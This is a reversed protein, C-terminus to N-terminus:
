PAANSDELAGDILEDFSALDISVVGLEDDFDPTPVWIVIQRGLATARQTVTEMSPSNIAAVAAAVVSDSELEAVYCEMVDKNTNAEDFINLVLCGSSRLPEDNATTALITDPLVSVYPGYVVYPTGDDIADAIRVAADPVNTEVDFGVRLAKTLTPAGRLWGDHRPPNWLQLELMGMGHTTTVPVRGVDSLDTVRSLDDLANQVIRVLDDGGIIAARAVADDVEGELTEM